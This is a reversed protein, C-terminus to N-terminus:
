GAVRSATASASAINLRLLHAIQYQLNDVELFGWSMDQLHLQGRWYGARRSFPLNTAQQMLGRVSRRSLFFLSHEKIGTVWHSGTAWEEVQLGGGGVLAPWSLLFNTSSLTTEAM